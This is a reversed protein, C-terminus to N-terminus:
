SEEDSEEDSEGEYLNPLEAEEGYPLEEELDDDEDEIFQEEVESTNANNNNADNNSPCGIFLIAATVLALIVLWNTKKM